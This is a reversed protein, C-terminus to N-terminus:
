HSLTDKGNNKESSKRRARALAACVVDSAGATRLVRACESLTAGTTVVDDILLVRQDRVREPDIVRYVGLVNSRRAADDHLMSQKRTNRMKKLTPVAAAGLERAAIEAILRAQDYGRKRLRLWSLPAWTILDFRDSLHDAVCQATLHGYVRSYGKCSSFKYRHISERVDDHYWLPSVCCSIFELKQEAQEGIIWPLEKQCHDCFLEEQERLLEHCFPCRPPFLLDLLTEVPRISM